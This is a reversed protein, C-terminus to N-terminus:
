WAARSGCSLVDGAGNRSRLGDADYFVIIDIDSSYNLEHAGMKGMALVVYGAGPEAPAPRAAQRPTRADVLLYDCRPM